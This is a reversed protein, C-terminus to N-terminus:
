RAALFAEIVSALAVPTEDMPYHGANGIVTLTANPYHNLWTARCTDAGLAPDHEGAIVLVPLARGTIREVISSRAWADLYGAVAAEDSTALSQKVMADLWTATLRNGTTLDIITRRADPNNAASSFLAWGQDDFPVGGAPVPTIGVLAEVRAPAEALVQQIAMGGMSHGILAFRDWGLEDAVSLVDDAIAAMTYPGGSGRRKGYGRYDVFAYSFRDRDLSDTFPGWGGAHGFWGNLCLVRKPGDGLREFRIASSDGRTTTATM